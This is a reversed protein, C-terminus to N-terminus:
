FAPLDSNKVLLKLRDHFAKLRIELTRDTVGRIRNEDVTLDMLDLENLMLKCQRQIEPDGRGSRVAIELASIADTFGTMAHEVAALSLGPQARFPTREVGGAPTLYKNPEFPAGSHSPLVRPTIFLYLRSRTTSKTFSRFPFGFIPLDGLGPIKTITEANVTSELGGMGLSMGEEVIAETNYSQSAVIPVSQGGVSQTSAVNSVEIDIAMSIQHAGLRKAHFNIIDGVPSYTIQGSTVGTNATGSSGVSALSNQLIPIQTTSQISGDRNSLVTQSGTLVSFSSSNAKMYQLTATLDPTSLTTVPLKTASLHNLDASTSLGSMSFSLGNTLLSSNLGTQENPNDSVLVFTFDLEIEPLEQDVKALFDEIEHHQYATARILFTNSDSIWRVFGKGKGKGDENLYEELEKTLPNDTTFTSSGSSGGNSGSGNIGSQNNNNNNNGISNNSAGGFSGFSSSGKSHTTEHTNHSLVYTRTLLEDPQVPTFRWMPHGSTMEEFVIDFQYDHALVQLIGWPTDVLHFTVKKSKLPGEPLAEYSMGAASALGEVVDGLASDASDGNADAVGVPLAQLRSIEHARAAPDIRPAVRVAQQYDALSEIPEAFGSTCLGLCTAALTFFLRMNM